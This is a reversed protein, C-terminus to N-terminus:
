LAPTGASFYRFVAETDGQAFLGAFCGTFTCPMAETSLLQSRGTGIQVLADERPGAFFRYTHRDTDIRLVLTDTDAFLVPGSETQMDAVRKRLWVACGAGRRRVCLDYHHEATHFVTIGACGGEGSLTMRTEYRQDFQQQRIGLFTSTDIDDLTTESGRLTLGDQSLTYNTMDPNRLWSWRPAFTNGRFSDKWNNPVSGVGEGPGTMAATVSKGENVVPWGADDWRLPALMTERGIHHLQANTPRIAHFVIWWNGEPDTVLDSHGLAQFPSCIDDRHTLIPNHPCSEFPGWVSRSRAITVMHGYETGGEAILLYYWGNIKYMHPGEPCRGGTGYWITKTESLKKGTNVDIEFQGIGQPNSGDIWTGTYYVRGDDDWFLSPDIGDHDIWVPDSWPGRIDEAHVLFNGGAHTNTTIMYWIGNHRRLTPAYIGGSVRCRELPLQSERTLIYGMQEWNVLDRSHWLPVGPFFEFSSNVLYYDEGERFISPDPYFGPIIPNEYIRM